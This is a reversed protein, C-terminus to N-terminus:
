RGDTEVHISSIEADFAGANLGERISIKKMLDTLRNIINRDAHVLFM